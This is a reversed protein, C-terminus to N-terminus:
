TRRDSAPVVISLVLLMILVVIIIINQVVFVIVNNNIILQDSLMSLQYILCLSLPFWKELVVRRVYAKKLRPSYHPLM